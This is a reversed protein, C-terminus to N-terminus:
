KAPGGRACAAAYKSGEFPKAGWDFDEPVCLDKDDDQARTELFVQARHAESDPVRASTGGDPVVDRLFEPNLERIHLTSTAAARAILSLRMGPKVIIEATSELRRGDSSFQLRPLNELILAHAEIAPVYGATEDPLLGAHALDWFGANGGVQAIRATVLFPGMNYAALALDWAGLKRKLDTLFHIAAETSKIPNLREDVDDEVVRMGYARASEPMFQWLGRAGVPSSARPNCGSEQFVVAVLWTPAGYKVLTSEFIDSYAACDFIKAQFHQRGAINKSEYDFVGRLAPDDQVPFDKPIKLHQLWMALPGSSTSSPAIVGADMLELVQHSRRAWGHTCRTPDEACSAIVRSEADILARIEPSEQGHEHVVASLRVMSLSSVPGAEIAPPPAADLMAERHPPQPPRGALVMVAVTVLAIAGIGGGVLYPWRMADRGPVARGPRRDPRERKPPESRRAAPLNVGPSAIPPVPARRESQAKRSSLGLLGGSQSSSPPLGAKPPEPPPPPEPPQGGGRFARFGFVSKVLLQPPPRPAATDPLGRAERSPAAPGPGPKAGPGGPSILLTGGLQPPRVRPPGNAPNQPNAPIAPNLPVPPKPASLSLDLLPPPAVGQYAQPPQAVAGAELRRSLAVVAAGLLPAGTNALGEILQLQDALDRLGRKRAVAALESSEIAVSRVGAASALVTQWHRAAGRINELLGADGSGGPPVGSGLSGM